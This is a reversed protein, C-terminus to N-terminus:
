GAAQDLDVLELEDPAPALLLRPTRGDPYLVLPRADDSRFAGVWRALEALLSDLQDPTLQALQATVAAEAQPAVFAWVPAALELSGTLLEPVAALALPLLDAAKEVSTRVPRELEAAVPELTM